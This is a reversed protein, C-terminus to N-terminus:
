RPQYLVLHKTSKPAALKLTPSFEFLAQMLPTTWIVALKLSKWLFFRNLIRFWNISLHVSSPLSWFLITWVPNNPLPTLIMVLMPLFWYMLLILGRSLNSRNIASSHTILTPPLSFLYVNLSFRRWRIANGFSTMMELLTRSHHWYYQDNLCLNSEWEFLFILNRSWLHFCTHTM